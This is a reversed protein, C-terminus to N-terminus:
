YISVNFINDVIKSRAPGQATGTREIYNNTSAMIMNEASSFTTSSPTETTESVPPDVTSLSLITTEETPMDTIQGLVYACLAFSVFFFKITGFM